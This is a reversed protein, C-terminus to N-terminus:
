FCFLSSTTLAWLPCYQAVTSDLELHSPPGLQSTVGM